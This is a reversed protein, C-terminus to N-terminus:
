TPDRVKDLHERGGSGRCGPHMVRKIEWLDEVIDKTVNGRAPIPGVLATRYRDELWALWFM